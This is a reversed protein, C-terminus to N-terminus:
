VTSHNFMFSRQSIYVWGLMGGNGIIDKRVERM